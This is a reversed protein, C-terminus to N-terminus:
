CYEVQRYMDDERRQRRKGAPTLTGDENQYRRVGWHMGKIGWHYLEDESIFTGDSTLLYHNNM